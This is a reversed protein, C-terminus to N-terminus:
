SGLPCEAVGGATVTVSRSGLSAERDEARLTQVGTGVRAFAYFGTGDTRTVQQDLRVTAGDAPKGGRTVIGKIMGDRPQTLWKAEPIAAPQPYVKERITQFFEPDPTPRKASGARPQAYCYTALGAIGPLSRTDNMQAVVGELVNLEEGDVGNIGFRGSQRAIDGLYNAWNRHAKAQSPVRERKYNMPIILDLFGDNAMGRWDQFIGGWADTREYGRAVDGWVIAAISVKVRPRWARVHAYTKRVQDYIQQRRFEAFDPDSVKPKGSKGYLTNFRSIAIPNYGWQSLGSSSEPYRIYDFHIGDVDYRSLIDRVVNLNYDIVGPVGPDLYYRGRNSGSDERNGKETVSLWEPHQQFVHRPDKWLDDNPIRARYAVLWAHVELRQEGRRPNHAKEVIYELPDFGTEVRPNKPEVTGNYYADCAKRVQIILTNYNAARATSLLTDAEERSRLGKHFVDVWLARYEPSKGSLSGACFLLFLLFAPLQMLRSSLFTVSCVKSSMLPLYSM